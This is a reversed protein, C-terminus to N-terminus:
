KLLRELILDSGTLRTTVLAEGSLAMQRLNVVESVDYRVTVVVEHLRREHYGHRAVIRAVGEEALMVNAAEHPVVRELNNLILHLIEDLNFTSCLAAVIDRLAEALHRQERESEEYKKRQLIEQQAQEYLRANEIAIAAQSALNRALRIEESNFDRRKVEDILEILGIVRNGTILPLMLLTHVKLRELLVVEAQDSDPDGRHILVPEGSELVKRTSPYYALDYITGSLETDNPTIISYDVLTEVINKEPRWASLTCESINLAKTMQEAVTHLVLELSLHSSIALSTEYLMALEQNQRQLTEEAQKRETVDMYLVQTAPKEQYTTPIAAVEVDIVRGDLRIFKEPILEVESSEEVTQRIREKVVSHYDPHVFDLMPKELLDELKEGGALNIAAQNAFVIKGKSHVVMAAPSFEVLRRYREERERPEEVARNDKTPESM